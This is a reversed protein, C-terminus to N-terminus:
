YIISPNSEDIYTYTSWLGNVDHYGNALVLETNGSRIPHTVFGADYNTSNRKPYLCSGSRVSYVELGATISPVGGGNLTISYAEGSKGITVPGDQVTQFYLVGQLTGYNTSVNKTDRATTAACVSLATASFAMVAAAVIAALKKMKFM